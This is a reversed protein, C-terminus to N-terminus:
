FGLLIGFLGLNTSVFATGERIDLRLATTSCVVGAPDLCDDPGVPLALAGRREPSENADLEFLSLGAAQDAIFLITADEGDIERTEIVVDRPYTSIFSGTSVPLAPITIDFVEGGNGTTGVVFGSGLAVTEFSHTTGDVTSPAATTVLQPSSTNSVDIVTIGADGSAVYAYTGEVAIDWGQVDSPFELTGLDTVTPYSNIDVIHLISIPNEAPASPYVSNGYLTYVIGNQEAVSISYVGEPLTPKYEVYTEVTGDSGSGPTKNMTVYPDALDPAVEGLTLGYTMGAFLLYYGDQSLTVELPVGNLQITALEAPNYPDAINNVGMYLVWCNGNDDWDCDPAEEDAGFDEQNYEFYRFDYLRTEAFVAEILSPTELFSIARCDNTDDEDCTGCDDKIAAGAFVNNCDRFCDNASDSDCVGCNDLLSPGDCVGACDM